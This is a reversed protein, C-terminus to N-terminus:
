KNRIGKFLEDTVEKTFRANFKALEMGYSSENIRNKPRVAPKEEPQYETQIIVPQVEQKETAPVEPQFLSYQM